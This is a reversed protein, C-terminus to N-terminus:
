TQSPSILGSQGASNSSRIQKAFRVEEIGDQTVRGLDDIWGRQCCIDDHTFRNNPDAGFKVAHDLLFARYSFQRRRRGYVAILTVRGRKLNRPNPPKRLRLRFAFGGCFLAKQTLNM